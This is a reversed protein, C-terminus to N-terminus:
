NDFHDDCSADCPGEHPVHGRYKLETELEILTAQNGGRQKREKYLEYLTSTSARKFNLRPQKM